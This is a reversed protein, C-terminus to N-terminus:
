NEPTDSFFTSLGCDPLWYGLRYRIQSERSESCFYSIMSCIDAIGESLTDPSCAGVTTM